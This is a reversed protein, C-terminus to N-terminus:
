GGSDTIWTEQVHLWAAGNPADKDALFLATAIRASPSRDPQTERYRVAAYTTTDFVVRMDSVEIAFSAPMSARHAALWTALAARDMESGDPAIRRFDRAFNRMAEHLEAEPLRGALWDAFFVHRGTVERLAREALRATADMM